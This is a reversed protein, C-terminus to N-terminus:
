RGGNRADEGARAKLLRRFDARNMQAVLRFIRDIGAGDQAGYAKLVVGPDRRDKGTDVLDVFPGPVAHTIRLQVTHLGEQFVPPDVYGVSAAEGCCDCKEM